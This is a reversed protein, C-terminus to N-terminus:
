TFSEAECLAVARAENVTFGALEFESAETETEGEEDLRVVPVEWAKAAEAMQVPPLQGEPSVKAQTTLLEIPESLEEVPAEVVKVAPDELPVAVSVTVADMPLAVLDAEAVMVTKAADM